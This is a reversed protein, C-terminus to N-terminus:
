RRSSLGLLLFLFLLGFHSSWLWHDLFLSPILALLAGIFMPTNEKKLLDETKDDRAQGPIWSEQIEKRSGPEYAPIVNKALSFIFSIFFVLGVIGLEAWILLFVNHAPQVSWVPRGGENGMEGTLGKEGKRIIEATFNGAGVGMFPHTTILKQADRLSVIRESVSGEREIAKTDFRPFIQEHLIGVFVAGAIGLVGLIQFFTVRFRSRQDRTVNSFHTYIALAVIGMGVGMWATRSFTLILGLLTIPFGVLFAMGEGRVFLKKQYKTNPIQYKEFGNGCDTMRLGYCGIGMMLIVGLFGGLVNPHPFTGYARLFRGSDIKLVSSGAVSADHASMGLMSSGISQQSLFQAIGIGSQIVGAVLLVFVVKKLDIEMGRVMFFLGAGLLLKVFFYLALAQDPAWFISLGALLLFVLFILDSIQYKINGAPRVSLSIQYKRVIFRRAFVIILVSILIIDVLYVGIVGYEWKVGGIFPERLLLVTQFPLLFLFLYFGYRFAAQM